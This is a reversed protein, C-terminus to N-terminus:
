AVAQSLIKTQFKPPTRGRAVSITHDTLWLRLDQLFPHVSRPTAQPYPIPHAWPVTYQTPAQPEPIELLLSFKPPWLRTTYTIIFMTIANAHTYTTLVTVPHPPTTLVYAWSCVTMLGADGGVATMGALREILTSAVNRDSAWDSVRM